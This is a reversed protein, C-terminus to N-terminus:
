RVGAPPPPQMEGGEDLWTRLREGIARMRDPLGANAKALRGDQVVPVGAVAVFAAGKGGLSFVAAVAPDYTPVLHDLPFAALDASKGPELSGIEDALGLACAGGM